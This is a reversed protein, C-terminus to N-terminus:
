PSSYTDIISANYMTRKGSKHGPKGMVQCHCFRTHTSKHEKSVHCRNANPCTATALGITHRRIGRPIGRFGADRLKGHPIGRSTVSEWTPDRPIDRSGMPIKACVVAPVRRQFGHSGTPHWPTLILRQPMGRCGPHAGRLTGITIHVRFGMPDRSMGCSGMHSGM